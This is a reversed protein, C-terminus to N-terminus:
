RLPIRPAQTHSYMKRGGAREAQDALRRSCRQPAHCPVLITSLPLPPSTTAPIMQPMLSNTLNPKAPSPIAPFVPSPTDPSSLLGLLVGACSLPPPLTQEAAAQELQEPEVWIYGGGNVNCHVNKQQTIAHWFSRNNALVGWDNINVGANLLDRRLGHGYNFQPRQQPRKNDVWSSLLMRPLRTMPMRSVHGAWRLRRRALYFQFPQLQLRSELNVQTIRHERVHWM